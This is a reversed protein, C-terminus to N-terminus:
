SDLIRKLLPGLSDLVFGFECIENHIAHLFGTLGQMM